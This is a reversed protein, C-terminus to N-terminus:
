KEKKDKNNLMKIVNERANLDKSSSRNVILINIEGTNINSYSNKYSILPNKMTFNNVV